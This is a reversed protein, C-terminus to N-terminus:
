PQWDDLILDLQSDMEARISAYDAPTATCESCGTAHLALLEGSTPVRVEHSTCGCPWFNWHVFPKHSKM